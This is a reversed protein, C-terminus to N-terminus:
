LRSELRKQDPHRPPNSGRKRFYARTASTDKDIQAKLAEIGSFKQEPRLMKYFEVRVREGYLDGSYDLIFSEASVEDTGGLTPRVGINTVALRKRKEGQLQVKTAYVGYPPIIVGETFRMNITPFGMTTGFKHGHCVIDTLSHPHGLFKNAREIDGTSILSRIYTSSVTIGELEVEPIIDCSIGLRECKEILRLANGEGKYGFRFDHGAVLGAVNFDSVLRDIFEEWPMKMFEEDFHIFIVDKVGFIRKIIDQRDFPSNILPVDVGMVLTDPHLDFTLVAPTAGEREAIQKAKNILAAHGIHIGDFFGLAVVRKSNSM